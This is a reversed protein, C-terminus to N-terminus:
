AAALQSGSLGSTVLGGALCCNGLFIQWMLVQLAVHTMTYSHRTNAAAMVDRIGHTHAVEM